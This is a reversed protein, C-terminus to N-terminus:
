VAFFLSPYAQTEARKETAGGPTKSYDAAHAEAEENLGHMRRRPVVAPNQPLIALRDQEGVVGFGDSGAQHENRRERVVRLSDSEAARGHRQRGAM